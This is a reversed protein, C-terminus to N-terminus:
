YEGVVMVRSDSGDKISIANGQDSWEQKSQNGCGDQPMHKYRYVPVQGVMRHNTNRATIKM